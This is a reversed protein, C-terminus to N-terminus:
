KLDNFYHKTQIFGEYFYKNKEKNNIDIKLPENLNINIINKKNKYMNTDNESSYIRYIKSIYQLINTIALKNKYICLYICLYNKSKNYEIPLGGGTAGDCYLCDNYLVPKFFLPISTTMKILSVLDLNPYNLHNIYEIKNKTVNSVKVTFKIKTKKYLDILSINDKNLFYRCFIKTYKEVETNDYLGYYDFLNKINFKKEDYLNIDTNLMIKSVMNINIGFLIPLSMLSGVSASIIHKIEKFNIIENDLLYKFSGLIAYGKVSGGSIILTDYKM